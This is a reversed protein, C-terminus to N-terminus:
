QNGSTGRAILYVMDTEKVNSAKTGDTNTVVGPNWTCEIIFNTADNARDATKDYGDLDKKAFKHYRYLPRANEQVNKYKQYTPDDEELDKALSADGVRVPNILEFSIAEPQKTWAYKKGAGDLGAVDGKGSATTDNVKYVKIDLGKINTTNAVQLEFEQGGASPYEDNSSKVCFARRVSVTGNSNKVDGRTEDYSIEIPEISTQNPGMIKLKAPTQIKGVTSLSKSGVFWTMTLGIIFIIAALLVLVALTQARHNEVWDHAATMHARISDM